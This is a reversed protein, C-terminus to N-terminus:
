CYCSFNNIFDFSSFVVLFIEFIKRNTKISDLFGYTDARFAVVNIFSSGDFKVFFISVSGDPDIKKWIVYCNRIQKNENNIRYFTFTQRIFTMIFSHKRIFIGSGFLYVLHIFQHITLM